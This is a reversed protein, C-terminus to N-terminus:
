FDFKSQIATSLKRLASPRIYKEVFPRNLETSTEGELRLRTIIRATGAKEGLAIYTIFKQAIKGREERIKQMKKDNKEKDEESLFRYAHHRNAQPWEEKQERFSKLDQDIDHTFATLYYDANRYWDKIDDGLSVSIEVHMNDPDNLYCQLVYDRAQREGFESTLNIKQESTM